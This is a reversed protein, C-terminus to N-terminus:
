PELWMRLFYNSVRAGVGVVKQPHPQLRLADVFGELLSKKTSPQM